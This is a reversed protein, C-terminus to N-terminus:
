KGKWNLEADSRRVYNADLRLADVTEGRLAKQYALKGITPALVPSVERFERRGVGADHASLLSALWVPSPTALIAGDLERTEDLWALFEQPAMVLNESTCVLGTLSGSTDSSRTYSGAYIQGRRADLVPIIPGSGGVAQAAVAELGSIPAVPKAFSESWAKATTLGVRLGTFSGPGANVAFLDFRDLSVALETLLFDLHRFIRSSYTEETTTSVLAVLSGNRLV